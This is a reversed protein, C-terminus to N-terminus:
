RTDVWDSFLQRANVSARTWTRKLLKFQKRDDDNVSRKGALFHEGKIFAAAERFNKSAGSKVRRLAQAQQSEAVMSAPSPSLSALADLEVGIDAAPMDKIAEQVDPAIKEGRAKDVKVQSKSKGTAKATDAVFDVQGKDKPGRKSNPVSVTRLEKRKKIIKARRATHDARELKTLDARCLNEDIEWLQRDIKNMKVPTCDIEEWCLKRAAAVRHRGAVLHTKDGHEWVHVPQMLGIADMSEALDDIKGQNLSRIRKDIQLHALSIRGLHVRGPTAFGIPLDSVPRPPNPLSHTSKSM